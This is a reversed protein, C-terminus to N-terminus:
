GHVDNAFVPLLVSFPVGLLSVFALLTMLSRIPRFGYVYRLGEKFQGIVSVGDPKRHLQRIDRMLVLAILVAFYSVGDILFCLGESSAAIILGAISPGILRAANFM